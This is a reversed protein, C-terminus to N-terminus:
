KKTGKGFLKKPWKPEKDMWEWEGIFNAAIMFLAAILAVPGLVCMSAFFLLETYSIEDFQQMWYRVLLLFAIVGCIIWITLGIM